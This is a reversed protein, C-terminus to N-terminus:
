TSIGVYDVVISLIAEEGILILLFNVALSGFVAIQFWLEKFAPSSDSLSNTAWLVLADWPLGLLGSVYIALFYYYVLRAIDCATKNLGMCQPDDERKFMGFYSVSISILGLGHGLVRITSVTQAIKEFDFTQAIKEFDFSELSQADITSNM